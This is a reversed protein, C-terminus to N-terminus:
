SRLKALETEARDLWFTMEMSRYADSAVALEARARETSGQKAYLGGPASCVGGWM